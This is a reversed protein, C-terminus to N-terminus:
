IVAETVTNTIGSASTVFNVLKSVNPVVCSTLAQRTVGRPYEEYHLSCYFVFPKEPTKALVNIERRQKCGLSDQCYASTQPLPPVSYADILTLTKGDLKVLTAEKAVAYLSNESSAYLLACFEVHM